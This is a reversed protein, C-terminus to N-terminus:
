PLLLRLAPLRGGHESGYRTGDRPEWQRRSEVLQARLVELEIRANPDELCEYYRRKPEDTPLAEDGVAEDM